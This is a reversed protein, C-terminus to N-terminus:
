EQLELRILTLQNADSEIGVTTSPNAIYYTFEDPTCGAGSSTFQTCTTVDVGTVTGSSIGSGSFSAFTGSVTNDGVPGIILWNLDAVGSFNGGAAAVPGVADLEVENTADVGTAGMAFTGAFSAGTLNQLGAVGDVVDAESVTNTAPGDMSLVRANGNGDLYLELNYTYPLGVALGSLTVRGTGPPDVTYNGGTITVGGPVSINGSALDNFSLNGSVSGDSNGTVVGALQLVGGAINDAGTAGFVYSAGEFSSAGFTGTGTQVFAQGGTVGFLHDNEVLRLVSGSVFYGVFSFASGTTPNLTFIVRGFQDLPAASVSSPGFTATTLTGGDNEDFVSGAGDINNGGSIGDVNIVGGIGLANDGLDFGGVSFAYGAVPTTTPASQPELQGSGSAWGDFEIIRAGSGSTLTANLTETGNGGPGINSDGTNLTIQVNGDATLAYTGTLTDTLVNSADALDQEGTITGSTGSSGSTPVFTFAGAVYYPSNADEGSLWFTYNGATLAGSAASTINVSANATTTSSDVATATITVNGITSPATYTVSAGSAVASTGSSFSGCTNAPACSYIVGGNSPDNAVTAVVTATGSPVLSTPPATTFTVSIATTTITIGPTSASVSSNDAVTATIVVASPPVSAPATYTVATGSATNSASFTGCAGATTSGCAASWNAGSSDNTITASVPLTGSAALSTPTTSLSITPTTNGGGGGGGSNSSSCAVLAAIMSLSLLLLLSRCFSVTRFTM